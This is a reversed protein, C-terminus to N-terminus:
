WKGNYIGEQLYNKIDTLSMNKQTLYQIVTKDPEEKLFRYGALAMFWISELYTMGFLVALLIIHERKLRTAPIGNKFTNAEAQVWLKRWTYWTNASIGIEREAIDPVLMHLQSARANIVDYLRDPVNGFSDEQISELPCSFFSNIRFRDWENLDSVATEWQAPTFAEHLIELCRLEPGDERGVTSIDPYLYLLRNEWFRRCAKSQFNRCINAINDITLSAEGKEIRSRQMDSRLGLAIRYDKKTVSQNNTQRVLIAKCVSELTSYCLPDTKQESSLRICLNLFEKEDAHDSGLIQYAKDMISIAISPSIATLIRITLEQAEVASITNNM